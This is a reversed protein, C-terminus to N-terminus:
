SGKIIRRRDQGACWLCAGFHAHRPAGAPEVIPTRYLGPRRYTTNVEFYGYPAHNQILLERPRSGDAPGIIGEREMREILRA